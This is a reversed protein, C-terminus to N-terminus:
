GHTVDNSWCVTCRHACANTICIADCIAYNNTWRIAGADAAINACSNTDSHSSAHTVHNLARWNTIGGSVDNACGHASYHSCCLAM